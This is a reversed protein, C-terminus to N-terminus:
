GPKPEGIASRHALELDVEHGFAWSSPGIDLDGIKQFGRGRDRSLESGEGEELVFIGANEQAEVPM